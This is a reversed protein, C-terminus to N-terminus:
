TSQKKHSGNLSSSCGYLMIFLGELRFLRFTSGDMLLVMVIYCLHRITVEGKSFRFRQTHARSINVFEKIDWCNLHISGIFFLTNISTVTYLRSEISGTRCAGSKWRNTYLWNWLHWFWHWGGQGIALSKLRRCFCLNLNNTKWGVTKTPENSPTNNLNFQLSGSTIWKQCVWAAFLLIHSLPNNGKFQWAAGTSKAIYSCYM